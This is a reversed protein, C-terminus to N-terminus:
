DKMVAFYENRDDAAIVNAGVRDKEVKNTVIVVNKLGEIKRFEEPGNVFKAREGFYFRMGPDQVDYLYLEQGKGLSRAVKSYFSKVSPNFDLTWLDKKAGFYFVSVCSVFIVVPFAYKKLFKEAGWGAIVCLAPYVPMIYWHLKTKVATFVVLVTFVWIVPLLMKEKRHRLADYLFFPLVIFAVMGWPKGKYLVANIYSLWTGTHGDMAVTTRGILHTKFIGDLFAKGYHLFEVYYWAGALAAFILLGLATFRNFALKWKRAALMYLAAIVPLLLAGVGKTMFAFAFFIFSYVIEFPRDEARLIFYASLFLFFTFTVDLTGMRAFWLFHYTSMLMVASLFGARRSFLKAAFLYTVIVTGMGCLGSFLRTAFENVGFFTYFFATVWMYLPPKDSWPAGGWTLDIWNNSQVIERSVEAYFAEDWSSLSGSGLNFLIVITSVALLIFIDRKM